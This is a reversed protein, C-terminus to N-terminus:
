STGPQCGCTGCLRGSGQAHRSPEFRGGTAICAKLNADSLDAGSLRVKSARAKELNASCLLAQELDAKTLNVSKLDVGTWRIAALYAGRLDPRVHRAPHWNVGAAHLLSAAMPDCSRDVSALRLRLTQIAVESRAILRGTEHVLARPLQGALVDRTGVRILYEALWGAAMLIQVPPHRLLRVLARDAELSGSLWRTSM